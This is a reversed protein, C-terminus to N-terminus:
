LTFYSISYSMLVALVALVARVAVFGGLFSLKRCVDAVAKERIRNPIHSSTHQSIHSAELTGDVIWLFSGGYIGHGVDGHCRM